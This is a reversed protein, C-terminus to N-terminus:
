SAEINRSKEKEYKYTSPAVGFDDPPNIGETKLIMAIVAYHHVTHSILFQLERRVSSVAWPSGEEGIGENSRVQIEKEILEPKQLFFDLSDIVSRIVKIAFEKNREIKLDRPRDDYNIKNTYGEILSQYHEIIHRFHRGVGSKFHKGDNKAYQEDSISHLLEVGQSLYYINSKVVLKAKQM